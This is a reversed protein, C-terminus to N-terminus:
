FRNKHFWSFEPRQKPPAAEAQPVGLKLICTLEYGEPLGILKEVEKKEDGWFGIIGSGLGGALAALSMNEVALWGASSTGQTTCVAVVSVNAFAKKQGLARAEVDQPTEGPGPKNKRNLRYKLEGIRDITDPDDIYVFEWPQSNGGSPARAGALIIRRVQEETAAKAFSRITRRKEIAEYLDM